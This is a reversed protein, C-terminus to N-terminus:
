SSLNARRRRPTPLYHPASLAGCTNFTKRTNGVTIIKSTGSMTAATIGYSTTPIGCEYAIHHEGCEGHHHGGGRAVAPSSLAFMAAVSGCLLVPTITALSNKSM